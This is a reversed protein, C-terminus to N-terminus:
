TPSGTATTIAEDRYTASSAASRTITSMSASTGTSPRRSATALVSSTWRSSGELTLTVMGRGDEGSISPSKLEAAWRTV